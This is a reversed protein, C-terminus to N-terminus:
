FTKLIIWVSLILRTALVIGTEKEFDAGLQQVIGSVPLGSQHTGFTLTVAKKSQASVATLAFIMLFLTLGCVIRNKM